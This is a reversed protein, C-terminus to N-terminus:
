EVTREAKAIYAIAHAAQTGSVKTHFLLVALAVAASPVSHM